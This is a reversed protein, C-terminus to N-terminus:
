GERIVSMFKEGFRELKNEGVGRIKLFSKRDVPLHCAMERLSVDGFVVFPPVNMEDALERRLVRLKEFLELDYDIEEVTKSKLGRRKRAGKKGSKVSKVSRLADDDVKMNPLNLVESSKLFEVGKNTISLIPYKSGVVEIFGLAVLCNIFHKLEDVGFDDVISFVSLNGHGNREIQDSSKGLLVDCIYKKGFRNEVRVVCSLIKQSIITRDFSMSNGTCFDCAGCNMDKVDEGFYELLYKRRCFAYDCYDMVEKMKKQSALREEESDLNNVFFDHKIKDSYSYFMVCESKLGDRGARGVEQYYGEISKPFSYHVILRVDPKDIGMGFAITAVIIDVKDKIFLDQNKARVDASLGANYPLAKFGEANLSAAVNLTDKRSFCYVIVSEARYNGLINVLRDLARKKPLVSFHLNERDFSSVFIEPNNLNLQKVVDERVKGTATATLAIIPLAPFINKLLRLNGYDPRFDHGWESICHAEDVAILSLDLSKLFDLFGGVSLREPAVYLIKINGDVLDKKIQLIEDFSLSSNIFSASVGNANLSDVQDKMLAILPSVVLTLGSFKLAPLQYCLSKGGGTPMLVFSDRGNLVNSIVEEQLPKFEDYGFYKKLLKKM